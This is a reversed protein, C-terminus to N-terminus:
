MAVEVSHVWDTVEGGFKTVQRSVQICALSVRIGGPRPTGQPEQGSSQLTQFSTEQEQDLTGFDFYMSM